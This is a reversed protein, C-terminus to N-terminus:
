RSQEQHHYQATINHHHTRSDYYHLWRQAVETLNDFLFFMSM